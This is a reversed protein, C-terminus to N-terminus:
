GFFISSIDNDFGVTGLDAIDKDVVLSRGKCDRESWIKVTSGPRIASATNEPRVNVCGSGTVNRAANSESFDNPESLLTVVGAKGPQPTPSGGNGGTSGGNNGGEKFGQAEGNLGIGFWVGGVGQGKVDGPRADESFRYLPWGNLTLQLNGDGRNAIGFPAKIREDFEISKTGKDIIVPPWKSACAGNCNSKRSDKKDNKFLYLTFGSKDTVVTKLVPAQRVKVQITDSSPNNWSAAAAHSKVGLDGSGKSDKTDSGGGCATLALSVLLSTAVLSATRRRSM